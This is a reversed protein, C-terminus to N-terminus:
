GNATGPEARKGGSSLRGLFWVVPAFAFCLVVSWMPVVVTRESYKRGGNFRYYEFGMKSFHRWSTALLDDFPAKETRYDWGTSGSYDEYIVLEMRGQPTRLRYQRPPESYTIWDATTQSRIWWVCMVLCLLFSVAVLVQIMRYIM